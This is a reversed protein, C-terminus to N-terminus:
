RFNSFFFLFFDRFRVDRPRVLRRRGVRSLPCSACLAAERLRGKDGINLAPQKLEVGPSPSDQSPKGPCLSLTPTSVPHTTPSRTTVTWKKKRFLSIFPKGNKKQTHRYKRCVTYRKKTTPISASVCPALLCTHASRPSLIWIWVFM